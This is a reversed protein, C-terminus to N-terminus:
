DQMAQWVLEAIDLVRLRAKEQRAASALTRKCQQCASVIYGAGTAQAQALRRRGVAATLEANAMEADGGGGCCLALEHHDQMERLEVGPISRIIRRPAEYIGSTRGLDCPDHYTVVAEFPHLKLAGSEALDALWEAAHLVEFGLPAGLVAPYEHRWTHYCSPCTTVVRKAGLARVSEVNHLALQRASEGMGAIRLPFGCCWEEGGLMTFDAGVRRLINVFAQAVGYVAPYFSSVCGAFYVTEAGRRGVADALPEELNESWIMRQGNDDGSINYKDLLTDRLTNFPAPYEGQAVM